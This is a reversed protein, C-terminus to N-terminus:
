WPAHAHDCDCHMSVIDAVTEIVAKACSYVHEAVKAVEHYVHVVARAVAHAAHVVCNIPHFFSCTSLRRRHEHSLPSPFVTFDYPSFRGNATAKSQPSYYPSLRRSTQTERQHDVRKLTHPYRNTRMEIDANKFFDLPGLKSTSVLLDDGDITISEIRRMIARPVHGGAGHKSGDFETCGWGWGGVLLAGVHFSENHLEPAHLFTVRLSANTCTINTIPEHEDLALIGPAHEVKYRLYVDHGDENYHFEHELKDSSPHAGEHLLKALPSSPVPLGRDAFRFPHISKLLEIACTFSVLLCATPLTQAQMQQWWFAV